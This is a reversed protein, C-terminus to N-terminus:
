KKMVGTFICALIISWDNNSSSQMNPYFKQGGKLSFFLKTHGRFIKLGTKVSLAQSSCCALTVKSCQLQQGSALFYLFSQTMCILVCLGRMNRNKIVRILVGGMQTGSRLLIRTMVYYTKMKPLKESYCRQPFISRYALNEMIRTRSLRLVKNTSDFM